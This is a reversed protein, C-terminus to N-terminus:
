SDQDVIPINSSPSSGKHLLNVFVQTVGNLQVNSSANFRVQAFINAGRPQSGQALGSSMRAANTVAPNTAWGQAIVVEDQPNSEQNTVPPLAATGRAGYGLM